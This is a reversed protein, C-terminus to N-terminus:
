DSCSQGMAANIDSSLKLKPEIEYVFTVTLGVVCSDSWFSLFMDVLNTPPLAKIASSMLGVCTVGHSM